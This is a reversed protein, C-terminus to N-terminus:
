RKKKVKPPTAVLAEVVEPTLVPVSAVGAYPPIVLSPKAEDTEIICLRPELLPDSTLAKVEDASFEVFSDSKLTVSTPRLGEVDRSMEGPRLAVLYAM